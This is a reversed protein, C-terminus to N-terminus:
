LFGLKTETASLNKMYSTSSSEALTERFDTFIEAKNTPVRKNTPQTTM